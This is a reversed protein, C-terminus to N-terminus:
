EDKTEILIKQHAIADDLHDHDYVTGDTCTWEAYSLTLMSKIKNRETKSQGNKYSEAHPYPILYTVKCTIWGNGSQQGALTPVYCLATKNGNAMDFSYVEVDQQYGKHWMITM